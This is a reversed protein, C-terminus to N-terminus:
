GSTHRRSLRKQRVKKKKTETRIQKRPRTKREQKYFQRIELYQLINKVGEEEMEGM